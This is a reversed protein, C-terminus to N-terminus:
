KWFEWWKAESVTPTYDKLLDMTHKVTDLDSKSGMVISIPKKM